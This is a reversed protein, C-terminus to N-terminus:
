IRATIKEYIRVVERGEEGTVPPNQNNQISDVFRAMLTYHGSHYPRCMIRNLARSAANVVQQYAQNLNELLPSRVPGYTTLTANCLDVRLNMRTGFIDLARLERPWNCSSTITAVGNGAELIVRLEDANVWDYSSFKKTHVAVPEVNGLFAQALYIPHPLMEGFAGGPLRHYRHDKNMIWDNDKPWSININMGIVDGIAGERVIPRAKMVLAEFLMNHVVCPKVRNEKSANVMADAENVSVAMPKEVLVHCGAEMAQISLTAHADATACIDVMDLQERTLMDAFSVYYRSIAFTDAAGRARGEDIDCVAVLEVSSNKLLSPIHPGQAVAGCGVLGVKLPEKTKM